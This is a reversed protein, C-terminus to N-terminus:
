TKHNSSNKDLGELGFIYVKLIQITVCLDLDNVYVTAEDNTQVEGNATIMTTPTRSVRTTEM